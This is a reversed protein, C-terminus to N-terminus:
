HCLGIFNYEHNRHTEIPRSNQYLVAPNAQKQERVARSPGWNPQHSSFTCTVERHPTEAHPPKSKKMAQHDPEFLLGGLTGTTGGWYHVQSTDRLVHTRDRAKSLPNLIWHQRSRHHLSCVHSLDWTATATAYSLLQLESEVGLRPVKM